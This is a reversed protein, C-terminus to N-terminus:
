RAARKRRGRQGFDRVAVVVTEDRHAVEVAIGIFPCRDLLPERVALLRRVAERVRGVAAQEDHRTPADHLVAVHVHRADAHVIGAMGLKRDDLAVVGGVGHEVDRERVIAGRDRVSADGHRELNDLRRRM